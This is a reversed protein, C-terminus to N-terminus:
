KGWILPNIWYKDKQRIECSLINELNMWITGVILIENTKLSSCQMTHMYWM